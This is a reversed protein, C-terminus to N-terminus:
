ALTSANLFDHLKHATVNLKSNRATLFAEAVFGPNSSGTFLKATQISFVNGNELGFETLKM